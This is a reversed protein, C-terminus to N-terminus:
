LRGHSFLVEADKLHLTGFSPGRGDGDYGASGPNFLYLPRTLTTSGIQTGVPLEAEHPLHTHGFLVVDAGIQEAHSLLAGVGGKVGYYHGHCLLITHGEAYYVREDPIQMAYSGWDCNGRVYLVPLDRGELVETDRVGDGLFFVADPRKVQKELASLLRDERGHSDSLILFEM